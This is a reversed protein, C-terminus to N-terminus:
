ASGYRNVTHPTAALPYNGTSTYLTLNPKCLKLPYLLCGHGIGNTLMRKKNIQKIINIKFETIKKQNLLCM